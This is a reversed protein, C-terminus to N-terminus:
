VTSVILSERTWVAVCKNAVAKVLYAIDVGDADNDLDPDMALLQQASLSDASVAGGIYYQLFQVDEVDFVCDGNTDGLISACDVLLARGRRARHLLLEALRRRAVAVASANNSYYGSVAAAAAAGATSFSSGSGNGASFAFARAELEAAEASTMFEYHRPYGLDDDSDIGGDTIWQASGTSAAADAPKKGAVWSWASSLQSSLTRLVGAEGDAGGKGGTVVAKGRASASASASGRAVITSLRRRPLSSLRRAAAVSLVDAGAFIGVGTVTTVDDKIKVIEGGIDLAGAALATFTITAVTVSGKSGCGSSPNLGCSGVLLVEDLPDNTTCEFTSIWGSGQVCDGDSAVAVKTADFTVIVQFATVDLSTSGQVRVAVDFTDGVTVSGFPAGTAAGLDVDYPQPLLNAYVDLTATASGGCNEDVTLTVPAFYNAVLEVVGNTSVTIASTESSAFALFSSPNIWSETAAGSGTAGVVLSTGDEFGVTVSLQDQTGVVGRLTSATGVDATLSLSTVGTQASSVTITKTATLGGFSATIVLSGIAAAVLGRCKGDNGCPANGAFSAVLPKSSVFSVDQYFSVGSEVTGDTLTGSARAELRQFIGSCAVFKLTTVDGSAWGAVTPYPLTSVAISAMKVVAVTATASLNASPFVASLAPFAVSVSATSFAASITAGAKTTMVPGAMKVLNQSGDEAVIFICRTDNSFDMTSGDEYTVIVELTVSAAVSFPALTAGDGAETLRAASPTIAVSVPSPMNLMVVGRDQALVAGGGGCVRWTAILAPHCYPMAGVAVEIGSALGVGSRDVVSVYASDSALSAEDSVDEWTGDGFRAYVAVTAADGEHFLDQKLTLKAVATGRFGFVGLDGDEPDWAGGSVAVVVLGTVEAVDDDSVVVSAGTGTFTIGAHSPDPMTFTIAATGPGQGRVRAFGDGEIVVAAVTPDSSAFTVLSSM